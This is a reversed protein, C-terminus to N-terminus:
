RAVSRWWNGDRTEPVVSPVKILIAPVEFKKVPQYRRSLVDATVNTVGPLHEVVNPSYLGEAIDLAMERALTSMCGAKAKM